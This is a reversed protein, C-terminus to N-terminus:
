EMQAVEVRTVRREPGRDESLDAPEVVGVDCVAVLIELGRGGSPPSRRRRTRAELRQSATTRRTTAANARSMRPVPRVATWSASVCGSAASSTVAKRPPGRMQDDASRQEHARAAVREPGAGRPPLPATRSRTARVCSARRCGRSRSSKQSPTCSAPPVAAVNVPLVAFPAAHVRRWELERGPPPFSFRDVGPLVPRPSWGVRVSSAPM